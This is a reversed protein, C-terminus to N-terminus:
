TVPTVAGFPACLSFFLSTSLTYTPKISDFLRYPSGSRDTKQRQATWDFGEQRRRVRCKRVGSVEGRGRLMPLCGEYLTGLPCGRATGPILRARAVRFQHIGRSVEQLPM